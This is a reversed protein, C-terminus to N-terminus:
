LSLRGCHFGQSGRVQLQSMGVLRCLSFFLINFSLFFYIFLSSKPLLLMTRVMFETVCRSLFITFVFSFINLAQQNRFFIYFSIITKFDWMNQLSETCTVVLPCCRFSPFTKTSILYILGQITLCFLPQITM